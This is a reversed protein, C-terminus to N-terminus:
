NQKDKNKRFISLIRNKKNNVPISFLENKQFVFCFIDGNFLRENFYICDVENGIISDSIPINYCNINIIRKFTSSIVTIKKYEAGLTNNYENIDLKINLCLINDKYININTLIYYPYSTKEVTYFYDYGDILEEYIKYNDTDKIIDM